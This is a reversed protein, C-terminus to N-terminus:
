PYFARARVSGALRGAHRGAQATWRMRQEVHFLLPLRAVIGAYSKLTPGVPAPELGASRFERYLYPDSRGYRYYQRFRRTLEPPRRAAVVAGSVYELAVGAHQLRWSLVVDEATDREEPFGGLSEFRSRRVGFNTGPAYPLYGMHVPLAPAVAVDGHPPDGTFFVIPGGGADLSDHREGWAALWGALVVDDADVFLLFDGAAAEAGLNRAAAPGRRSSADVLRVPARAAWRAVRAATDDTSGNDAVVIECDIDARQDVLAALQADITSAADFAPIVVSIM